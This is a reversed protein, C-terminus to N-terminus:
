SGSPEAGLPDPQDDPPSGVAPAQEPLRTEDVLDEVLPEEAPHETM